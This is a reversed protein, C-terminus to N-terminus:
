HAAFKFLQTERHTATRGLRQAGHRAILEGFILAHDPFRSDGLFLRRIAGRVGAAQRWDTAPTVAAAAALTTRPAWRVPVLPGRTLEAFRTVSSTTAPIHVTLDKTRGTRTRISNRVTAPITSLRSSDPTPTEM